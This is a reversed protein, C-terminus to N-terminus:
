DTYDIVGPPPPRLRLYERVWVRALVRVTNDDSNPSYPCFTAPLNHTAAFRAARMARLRQVDTPESM